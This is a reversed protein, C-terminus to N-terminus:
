SFRVDPGQRTALIEAENPRSLVDIVDGNRLLYGRKEFEDLWYTMCWDGWRDHFRRANEVISDFHQLPPNHVAHHQHYCITGGLWCLPLGAVRLRQGFDTEEAGYGVYDEDMGGAAFWNQRLLIFALGWLEGYDEVRKTAVEALSPKAPHRVGAGELLAYDPRSQAEDLWGHSMAPLYRIEPMYVGDEANQIAERARRIFNRDAICDVDLFALIDGTAAYAASNRASALPLVDGPIQVCSVSFPLPSAVQPPQEQMYAIVLEDPASTQALLGAVLHDLHVQRGRVLTAVTVTRHPSM